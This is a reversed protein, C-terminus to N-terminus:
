PLKCLIFYCIIFIFYMYYFYYIIFIFYMYYIIFFSYHIQVNDPSTKSLEIQLNKHIQSYIRHLKPNLIPAWPQYNSSLTWFQLERNIIPAWLQSNSSVTWILLVRNVTQLERNRNPAWPEVPLCWSSRKKPMSHCHNKPSLPKKHANHHKRRQPVLKFASLGKRM